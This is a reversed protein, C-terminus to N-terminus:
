GEALEKLENETLLAESLLRKKKFSTKIWAVEPPCEHAAAVM